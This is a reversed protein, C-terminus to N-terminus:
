IAGAIIAYLKQIEQFRWFLGAMPAIALAVLYGRYAPSGTDIVVHAPPQGDERLLGLPEVLLGPGLVAWLGTNQKRNNM